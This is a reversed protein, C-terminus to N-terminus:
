YVISLDKVPISQLITADEEILHSYVATAPALSYVLVHHLVIAMPLSRPYRFRSVPGDFSIAARLSAYWLCKSRCISQVRCYDVALSSNPDGAVTNQAFAYALSSAMASIAMTLPFCDIKDAALRDAVAVNIPDYDSYRCLYRRNHVSWPINDRRRSYASIAGLYYIKKTNTTADAVRGISRNVRLLRRFDSSQLM